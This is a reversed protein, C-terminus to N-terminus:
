LPMRSKGLICTMGLCLDPLIIEAVNQVPGWVKVNHFWRVTKYLFAYFGNCLHKVFCWPGLYVIRLGPWSSVSFVVGGKAMAWSDLLFSSVCQFWIGHKNEPRSAAAWKECQLHNQLRTPGHFISRAIKGSCLLFPTPATEQWATHTRKVWESILPWSSKVYYSSPNKRFWLM